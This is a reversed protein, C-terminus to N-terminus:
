LPVYGCHRNVLGEESRHAAMLVVYASKGQECSSGCLRTWCGLTGFGRRQAMGDPSWIRVVIGHKVLVCNQRCIGRCCLLDVGGRHGWVAKVRCALSNICDACLVVM